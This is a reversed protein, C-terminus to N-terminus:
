DRGTGCVDKKNKKRGYFMKETLEPTDWRHTGAREGGM